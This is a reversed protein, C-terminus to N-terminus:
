DHFEKRISMVEPLIKKFQVVLDSDFHTGSDQEIKAMTKEVSWAEKYPRKSTLADFVDCIMLIRTDLPIEEGKLGQPYGSGDWKEHHTLALNRAQALVGYDYGELLEAGRQAHTKMIEWEENDLPGEKLLIKDPIAIKGVDHMPAANFLGWCEAESMGCEQAMLECYKSMRIVHMGTENDRYEAVRGLRQIIGLRTDELAKTRRRVEHELHQKQDRLQNHMFRVELMNHIRNLVEIYEFPKTLFDKAGAALARNRVDHDLEVTLVLIPLYDGGKVENLAQMVEIGDMEPMLIDLLILDFAEAQYLKIVERPDTTVMINHYGAKGLMKRLLVGNAPTDDVILFRADVFDNSVVTM